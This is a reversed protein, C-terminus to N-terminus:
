RLAKSPHAVLAIRPVATHLALAKAVVISFQELLTVLGVFCADNEIEM